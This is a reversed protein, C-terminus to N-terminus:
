CRMSTPAIFSDVKRIMAENEAEFAFVYNSLKKWPQHLTKHEHNLVHRLRNDFQSTANEWEYYFGTGYLAGYVDGGELANFSHMSIM